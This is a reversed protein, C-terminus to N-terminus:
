ASGERAIAKVFDFKTIMGVLEYEKNVVPMGGIGNELLARAAEAADQDAEVTIPEVTMLSEATPLQYLRTPWPEESKMATGKIFPESGRYPRLFSLDTETIIGVPRGGEEVIVRDASYEEMMDVVRYFSHTRKVVPTQDIKRAIEGVTHAGKQTQLYYSTIDTKTIIGVLSGGSDVVPLGRINAKVMAKAADEVSASEQIVKVPTRMIELVMISDLERNRMKYSALDRVLDKKTLIGTPSNGEVVVLRSVMERLMLNRARAVTDNKSVTVVPSRMLEGVKM